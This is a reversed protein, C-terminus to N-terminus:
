KCGSLFGAYAPYSSVDAANTLTELTTPQNILFWVFSAASTFPYQPWPYVCLGKDIGVCGYDQDHNIHSKSWSEGRVYTRGEPSRAHAIQVPLASTVM